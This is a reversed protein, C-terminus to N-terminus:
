GSRDRDHVLHCACKKWPNCCGSIGVMGVLHALDREDSALSDALGAQDAAERLPCVSLRLWWCDPNVELDVRGVDVTADSPNVDPVRGPGRPKIPDRVGVVADGVGDHNRVVHGGGVAGLLASVPKLLHSSVRGVANGDQDDPGLCIQEAVLSWPCVVADSIQRPRHAQWEEQRRGFVPHPNVLCEFSGDALRALLPQQCCRQPHTSM